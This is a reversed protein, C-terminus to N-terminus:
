RALTDGVGHNTEWLLIDSFSFQILKESWGLLGMSDGLSVENVWSSPKPFCIITRGISALPLSNLNLSETWGAETLVFYTFYHIFSSYTGRIYIRVPGHRTTLVRIQTVNRTTIM